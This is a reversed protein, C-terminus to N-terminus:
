PELCAPRSDIQSGEIQSKGSSDHLQVVKIERFAKLTPVILDYVSLSGCGGCDGELQVKAVGSEITQLKAGSSGCDIFRLGTEEKSPGRYLSDLAIQPTWVPVQRKVSEICDASCEPSKTFFLTGEILTPTQKASKDISAELPVVKNETKPVSEVSAEQSCAFWMIVWM